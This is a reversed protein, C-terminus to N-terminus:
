TLKLRLTKRDIDLIRAAESKNGGCAELVQRVYDREVDQLTRDPTWKMQPKQKRIYDPLDAPKVIESGCMVVLRQILNELERVNGPWAYGTLMELTDHSFRPPECGMEVAFKKSFTLILIELDGERERLPPVDINLVNLRFFLDERFGGKESLQKLEKNTAAIIRIDVPVPKRSGVMYVEREQIVRLLKAQMALSMESVEDLFISGGDATQFFGARSTDAGTFAGKVYGFLESEMLEEPIASCNVPVFPTSQKKSSYHIARAVLEKGTGSEGTILVTARSHSAKEIMRYVRKMVKSSGIIGAPGHQVDSTTRSKRTRVKQALSNVGQLLEMETFPKPLYEEVGHKMAQVAGEVTAYGTIMMLGIDRYTARIHKVLEMGSGRPMKYDTIVIDFPQETLMRIAEEIGPATMVLKFETKLYRYLMERTDPQDDVVLIREPNM